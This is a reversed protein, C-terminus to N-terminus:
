KKGYIESLKKITPTLMIFNGLGYGEIQKVLFDNIM